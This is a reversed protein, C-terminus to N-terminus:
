RALGVSKEMKKGNRFITLNITEGKHADIMSLYGDLSSATQGDIELVIDGPLVDAEFAPSGSVLSTVYFGKNTQVEQREADNLERWNVGLVFKRKVFYIAGYDYRNITIPIYTTQSGYTTTTASGTM